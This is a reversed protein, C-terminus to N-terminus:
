FIKILLIVLDNMIVKFRWIDHKMMADDLYQIEAQTFLNITILGPNTQSWLTSACIPIQGRFSKEVAPRLNRAFNVDPWSSNYEELQKVALSGEPMPYTLRFYNIFADDQFLSKLQLEWSLCGQFVLYWIWRLSKDSLAQFILLLISERRNLSVFM